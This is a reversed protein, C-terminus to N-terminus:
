RSGAEPGASRRLEGDALWRGAARLLVRAGRTMAGDGHVGQRERDVARPMGQASCMMAGDGHVGQRERDVARPLRQASCTM